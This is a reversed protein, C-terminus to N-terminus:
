QGPFGRALWGRNVTYTASDSIAATSTLLTYQGAGFGALGNVNLTVAGSTSLSPVNVTDSTALNGFDYALTAGSSVTTASLKISGAVGAGFPSLTGSLAVSSGWTNSGSVTMAGTSSVVIPGSM